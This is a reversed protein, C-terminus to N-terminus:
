RMSRTQEAAAAAQGVAAVAAVSHAALQLRVREAPHELVAVARRVLVVLRVWAPPVRDVAAQRFAALRAPFTV